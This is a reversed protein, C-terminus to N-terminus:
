LYVKPSLRIRTLRLDSTMSVSVTHTGYCPQGKLNFWDSGPKSEVRRTIKQCGPAYVWSVIFADQSNPSFPNTDVAIPHHHNFWAPDITIGLNGLESATISKGAVEIAQFQALYNRAAIVIDRNAIGNTKGAYLDSQDAMSARYLWLPTNIAYHRGLWCGIGLAIGLIFIVPKKVGRRREM